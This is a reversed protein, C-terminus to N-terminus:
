GDLRSGEPDFFVPKTVRAAIVRGPMPVHVTQGHLGHGGRVLALAISRGLSPSLYSSTVHGIMPVPPTGPQASAVIQAGEELVEAPDVTLLGVLQKRGEAAVGAQRLGRKGIFDPKAKSVIWDMGLDYPTVTGDTDQGVIIYGKEARLVHMSETGYATIGFGQGAAWLAEWLAAGYGWPVNVEYAIEGSFSIRFLRAPIGAVTGTAFALHPLSENALHIDTSAARLVERAKPGVVAMAAWQETVSTCYVELHPWETQLWEELWALVRAAGGTTTTMHFHGPGLRATVGDDFVMGDDRLMLGYRCRGVELKMWANSYIRNLFEASDKGQLDIKGLTSADFLGVGERVARCERLVAAHMDEGRRPFYRARKWNGVDEFVAGQATAWDHSPTRRIPDFLEGGHPGALAGFTVPTYPMRFTTTGVAEIPIGRKDAVIALANVNSTKGQDTGMGTTTYRKVHEISQFGERVALGLDKATVDNQFDVFAKARAQPVHSPVAWTPLLPAQVPERVAPPTPAVGAHGADAAAAAGASAGETLCDALLLSGKAAGASREPQFSQSPVFAAAAEDFRLRGRSQSFLHVTPNWGGSVLLCDCRLALPEGPARAGDPLMPSVWARSVRLRGDTGVVAAGRRIPLGAAAAAAPLLGDPRPRLDVIAEIAVGARALDLAAAYASDNNTFVVARSGPLVAFRNLYTRAAGALMVGPRDNGHFVLPREIAGTCLVVQKARVRWLRQRPQKAPPLPLHDTVREHLVLYNHDLYGFANTRRLVTVEPMAALEAAVAQLWADGERGDFDALAGSESLLSGGLEAEREVLIVRAGARGAALAAMLGAPGAGVVLVDCHAHRHLYRDPDPRTPSRGLGAARRIFPEYVKSWWSAPWLFTKYYFGAPLFPSLLDNAAGVDFGLSPWRNQSEAALGDYLEIETARLNPDTRGGPRELQILASPEEAGATMIGRPRHYKFSRGVLHVGNALLASALTDGAFGRYSKGDFTFSLARARDIRGGGALRTM